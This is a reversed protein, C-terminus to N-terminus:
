TPSYRRHCYEVQLELSGSSERCRILGFNVRGACGPHGALVVHRAGQNLGRLMIGSVKNILRRIPYRRVLLGFGHFWVIQVRWGSPIQEPPVWTSPLM